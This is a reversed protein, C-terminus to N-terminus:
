AAAELDGGWAEVRRQAMKICRERQRAAAVNDPDLQYIREWIEAAESFRFQRMLEVAFRRLISQDSPRVQAMQRLVPEREELEAEGLEIEKLRRRLMSNMRNLEREVREEAGVESRILGALRLAQGHEGSLVLRRLEKLARGEVGDFFRDIESRITALQPDGSRRLEGYMQIATTYDAAVAALRATWRSVQFDEPNEEHALKIVALADRTRDAAHLSRAYILAGDPIGLLLDGSEEGIRLVEELDQRKYADRITTRLQKLMESGLKRANGSLKRAPIQSSVLDALGFIAHALEYGEALRDDDMLIRANELAGEIVALRRESISRPLRGLAAAVGISRAVARHMDANFAEEFLDITGAKDLPAVAKLAAAFLQEDRHRLAWLSVEYAGNASAGINELIEARWAAREDSTGHESLLVLAHLAPSLDDRNARFAQKAYAVASKFDGLREAAGAAAGYVSAGEYEEALLNEAVRLAGKADGTANLAEVLGVRMAQSLANDDGRRTLDEVAGAYDGIRSRVVGRLEVLAIADPAEGVAAHIERSAVFFDGIELMAELRAALAALRQQDEDHGADDTSMAGMLPAIHQRHMEDYVRDSFAPTYHTLDLGGKELAKEQGFDQMASTPDFVPADLQEAAMKVWRILRDRTPVLEDGATAANVHTVFLLKERGVRDVIEAMDTKIAKFSQQELQISSLLERQEASLMKFMPEQNLHELLQGRHALKVTKWYIKAREANAFFDAFHHHLYNSQVADGGCTILKSSSIEVITLDSPQWEEAEFRELDGDRAVLPAIELQLQKDGQLFRLLQLAESSTHVFGYNRGQEIEIPHRLAARRLPTHIRCTGIPSIRLRNV